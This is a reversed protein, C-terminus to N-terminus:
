LYDKKTTITLDKKQFHFIDLDKYRKAIELLQPDDSCYFYLTIKSKDPLKLSHKECKFNEIFLHMGNLLMQHQYKFGLTIMNDPCPITKYFTKNRIEIHM